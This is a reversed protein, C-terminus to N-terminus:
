GNKLPVEPQNINNLKFIAALFTESVNLRIKKLQAVRAEDGIRKGDADVLSRSILLASSNKKADPAGSDRLETWAVFDEAALSGIKYDKGSINVIAYEAATTGLLDDFSGFAAQTM